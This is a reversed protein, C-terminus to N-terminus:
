SINSVTYEARQPKIEAAEMGGSGMGSGDGGCLFSVDLECDVQLELDLELDNWESM